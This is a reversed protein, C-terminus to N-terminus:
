TEFFGCSFHIKVLSPTKGRLWYTPRFQLQDIPPTSDTLFFCSKIRSAKASVCSLSFSCFFGDFISFFFFLAILGFFRDHIKMVLTFLLGVKESKYFNEAVGRELDYMMLNLTRDAAASTPRKSNDAIYTCWHDSNLPGHVYASGVFMSQLFDVEESFSTHPYIQSM